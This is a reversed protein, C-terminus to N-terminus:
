TCYITTKSASCTPVWQKHRRIKLIENQNQSCIIQIKDLGPFFFDCSMCYVASTVKSLGQLKNLQM